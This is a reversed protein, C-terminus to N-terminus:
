SRLHKELFLLTDDVELPEGRIMITGEVREPERGTDRYGLREYLARAPENDISVTLSLRDFGRTVAAEEAARTVASAIGRRRLQKPVFVDQLEPPEGPEDPWALHGHGVPVDEDWAILYTANGRRYQDLRHLPLHADVLRLEDEALPRVNV